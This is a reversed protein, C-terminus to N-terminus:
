VVAPASVLTNAPASRLGRAIQELSHQIDDRNAAGGICVRVAEPPQASVSLLREARRRHRDIAYARCIGRADVARALTDLCSIRGPSVCLIRAAARAAIKQRVACEKRISALAVDATGDWKYL